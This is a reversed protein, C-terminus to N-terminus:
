GQEERTKVCQGLNDTPEAAASQVSTMSMTQFTALGTVVVIATIATKLFKKGQMNSGFLLVTINTKISLIQLTDMLLIKEHKV